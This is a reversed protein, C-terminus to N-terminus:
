ICAAHLYLLTSSRLNVDEDDGRDHRSANPQSNLTTRKHRTFHPTEEAASYKSTTTVRLHAHRTHRGRTHTRHHPHLLPYIIPQHGKVLDFPEARILSYHFQPVM